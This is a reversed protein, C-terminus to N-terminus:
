HTLKFELCYIFNRWGNQDLTLCIIKIIIFSLIFFVKKLKSINKSKATKVVILVDITLITLIIAIGIPVSIIGDPNNAIGHSFNFAINLNSPTYLSSLGAYVLLLLYKLFFKAKSM